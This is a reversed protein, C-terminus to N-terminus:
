HGRAPSRILEPAAMRCPRKKSVFPGFRAQKEAAADILIMMALLNVLPKSLVRRTSGLVIPVM